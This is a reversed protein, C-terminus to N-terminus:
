HITSPDEDRSNDQASDPERNNNDASNDAVVTLKPKPKELTEVVRLTYSGDPNDTETVTVSTKQIGFLDAMAIILSQTDERVDDDLQADATIQALNLVAEVLERDDDTLKDTM